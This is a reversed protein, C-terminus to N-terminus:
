LGKSLAKLQETAGLLDYREPFVLQFIGLVCIGMQATSKLCHRFSLSDGDLYTVSFEARHDGRKIDMNQLLAADNPHAGYDISREYLLNALTHIKPSAGKLSDLTSKATFIGKNKDLAKPSDHRRLWTERHEPHKSIFFGYTANELCGRLLMFTEPVQGSLALRAAGLFSAHARLFFFGAFFQDTHDLNDKMLTFVQNINKLKSYIRPMRQYTAFTNEYSTQIFESLSDDGWKDPM